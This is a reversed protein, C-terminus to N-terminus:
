PRPGVMRTKYAVSGPLADWDVQQPTRTARSQTTPPANLDVTTPTTARRPTPQGEPVVAVRADDREPNAADGGIVSNVGGALENGARRLQRLTRDMEGIDATDSTFAATDAATRLLPMALSGYKRGASQQALTLEQATQDRQRRNEELLQARTKPATGRAARQQATQIARWNDYATNDGALNLQQKWPLARFAPDASALSAMTNYADDKNGQATREAASLTVKQFAPVGLVTQGIAGIQPATGAVVPGTAQAVVPAMGSTARLKALEIADSTADRGAQRVREAEAIQDQKGQREILRARESAAIADQEAQRQRERELERQQLLLNGINGLNQSLSTWARGSAMSM